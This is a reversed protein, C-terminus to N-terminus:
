ETQSITGTDQGDLRLERGYRVAQEGFRNKVKDTAESLRHLDDHTNTAFAATNDAAANLDDFFSLQVAKHEFGSVGVGVLRIADGSRWIRHLLTYLTEIFDHEDDVPIALSHQATRISLDAYRLKLTVTQGSLGKARLRRAVKAAMTAIAAKIEDLKYLDVAFTVENSVSKVTDDAIVPSDEIGLTRERMLNANKGWLSLFVAQDAGALQGLTKIGMDQLRQAAKRGIGSMTQVPLPALFQREQGPWVVTLGNPKDMDSAIKAVTKSSGLGISCTVGLEAVKAQIAHAIEIPHQTAFRGPSIDAFAEDISVQDVFPTHASIVAMVQASMEAYRAHNGPTWIADPCLKQATISPMASHVGFKRAEYSCTSVVGRRKPSGGVIVPKGRWQPHDLQEVSAFFADLDLLIIAKGHWPQLNEALM